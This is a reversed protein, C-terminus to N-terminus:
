GSVGHIPINHDGKVTACRRQASQIFRDPKCLSRLGSHVDHKDRVAGCKRRVRYMMALFNEGICTVHEVICADTHTVSSHAALCGKEFRFVRGVRNRSAKLPVGRLHVGIEDHHPRM